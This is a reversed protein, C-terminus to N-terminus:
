TQGPGGPDGSHGQAPYVDDLLMAVVIRILLRLSTLNINAEVQNTDLGWYELEEEFLPGCM